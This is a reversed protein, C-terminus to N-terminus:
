SAARNIKLERGRHMALWDGNEALASRGVRRLFSRILERKEEIDQQNATLRREVEVLEEMLTDLQQRARAYFREMQRYQQAGQEYGEVESFNWALVACLMALSPVYSFMAEKWNAIAGLGWQTILHAAPGLFAVLFLAGGIGNFVTQLRERNGAKDKFFKLQDAIWKHGLSRSLADDSVTEHQYLLMDSTADRVWVMDGSHKDLYYEASMQEIGNALWFYQVRLAEALARYDEHKRRFNLGALPLRGAFPGEEAAQRSVSNSRRKRSGPVVRDECYRVGFQIWGNELAWLALAGSGGLYYFFTAIAARQPFPELLHLAVGAVLLFFFIYKLIWDNTAKYHAALTAAWSRIGAVWLMGSTCHTVSNGSTEKNYRLDAKHSLGPHGLVDRNYEDLLMYVRAFEESASREDGQTQGPYKWKLEEESSLDPQNTRRGFIQCVPGVGFSNIGMGYFEERSHPKSRKCVHSGEHPKYTGLKRHVVEATGGLKGSDRGDWVAILIQSTKVLLEALDSYQQRREESGPVRIQELTHCPHVPLTVTTIGEIQKLLTDNGDVTKFNRQFEELPMPLVPMYSIRTYGQTRLKQVAEVALQDAGEAMGTAVLIPTHSYSDSLQKLVAGIRERVQDVSGAHLDRHGSVAVVLSVLGRAVTPDLKSNLHSGKASAFNPQM